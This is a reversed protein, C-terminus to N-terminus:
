RRARLRQWEAAFGQDVPCFFSHDRALRANIGLRPTTPCLYLVGDRLISVILAAHRAPDLPIRFAAELPARVRVVLALPEVEWTGACDWGAAGAEHFRHPLDLLDDHGSADVFAAPALTEGRPGQGAPWEALGGGVLELAPLTGTDRRDRDGTM